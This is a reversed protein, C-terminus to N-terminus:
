ANILEKELKALVDNWADHSSHALNSLGELLKKRGKNSEVEYVKDVLFDMLFGEDNWLADAFARVKDKIRHDKMIDELLADTENMSVADDNFKSVQQEACEGAATKIFNKIEVANMIWSGKKFKM